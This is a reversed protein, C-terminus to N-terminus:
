SELITVVRVAVGLASKPNQGTVLRGDTISYPELPAVNTFKCGHSRLADELQFPVDAWAYTEEEANTYATINKGDILWSGDSLKVNLLCVPGHCVASVVKGSEWMIRHIEHAKPNDALDVMPALGGPTFVADYGQVTQLEDISRTNKMKILGEGNLFTQNLETEYAEMGDLPAEGGSVSYIDVEYGQRNFTVFPAATETLLNGTPRDKPGIHRASSVIFLIKKSM